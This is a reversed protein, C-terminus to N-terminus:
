IEFNYGMLKSVWKQQDTDIIRQEFLYKLGKQDTRITFKHGLLYNRWKRVAFVIVMLEREYVSSKQARNSLLQSFYAIPRKGQMLVAGLGTGSADTELEFSQSFDPMALVPVTTMATKLGEFSKQTLILDTVSAKLAIPLATVVLYSSILRIEPLEVVISSSSISTTVPLEPVVSEDVEEIAGAECSSSLEVLEEETAGCSPELVRTAEFVSTVEAGSM